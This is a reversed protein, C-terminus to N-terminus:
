ASPRTASAPNKPGPLKARRPETRQGPDPRPRPDFHKRPRRGLAPQQALPQPRFGPLPGLFQTRRCRVRTRDLRARTFRGCSHHSRPRSVARRQEQSSHLPSTHAPRFISTGGSEAAAEIAKNVANTDLAKGEGVAGFARVSFGASTPAPAAAPTTKGLARVPLHATALGGGAFHLFDRRSRVSSSSDMPM